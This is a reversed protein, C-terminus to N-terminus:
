QYLCHYNYQRNSDVCPCKAARQHISESCIISSTARQLQYSSQIGGKDLNGQHRGWQESSGVGFQLCRISDNSASPFESHPTWKGPFSQRGVVQPGRPCPSGFTHRRQQSGPSAHQQEEFTPDGSLSSPSSSSCNQLFNVERNHSLTSKFLHSSQKGLPSVRESYCCSERRPPSVENDHLGRHNGPIRHDTCSCIHIEGHQNSIRFERSNIEFDHHREQCGRLHQEHHAYRGSLSNDPHGDEKSDRNNTQTNQHLYTPRIDTRIPSLHIPVDQRPVSLPHIESVAQSPPGLFLRREPRTQVHFGRTEIPRCSSKFGGDQLPLIGCLQQVQFPQNSPTARVRGEEGCSLPQQLIGGLSQFCSRHDGRKSPSKNNRGASPFDTTSVTSLPIPPQNASSPKVPRNRLGTHDSSGMPRTYNDALKPCFVAVERGGKSPSTGKTPCPFPFDYRCRKGQFRLQNTPPRKRQLKRGSIRTVPNNQIIGQRDGNEGSPLRGFLSTSMPLFTGPSPLALRRNSHIREPRNTHLSPKTPTQTRKSQVAKSVKEALDGVFNLESAKSEGFLYTQM